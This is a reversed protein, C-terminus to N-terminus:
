KVRWISWRFWSSNDYIEKLKKIFDNNNENDIKAILDSKAVPTYPNKIWNDFDDQHVKQADALFVQILWWAKNTFDSAIHVKM